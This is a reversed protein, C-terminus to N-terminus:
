IKGNCLLITPTNLDTGFVDLIFRKEFCNTKGFFYLFFGFTLLYSLRKKNKELILFLPFRACLCNQNKEFYMILFCM